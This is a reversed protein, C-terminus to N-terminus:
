DATPVAHTPDTPEEGGAASPLVQDKDDLWDPFTPRPTDTRTDALYAMYLHYTDLPFTEVDVRPKKGNTGAIIRPTLPLGARRAYAEWGVRETAGAAVTRRDGALTVIDLRM